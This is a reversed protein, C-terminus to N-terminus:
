MAPALLVDDDIYAKLTQGQKNEINDENLNSRHAFYLVDAWVMWSMGPVRYSQTFRPGIAESLGGLPQAPSPKALMSARENLLSRMARMIETGNADLGALHVPVLRELVDHGKATLV